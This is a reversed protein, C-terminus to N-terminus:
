RVRTIRSKLARTAVLAVGGALIETVICALAPVIGACFNSLARTITPAPVALSTAALLWDAAVIYVAATM